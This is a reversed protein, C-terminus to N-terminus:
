FSIPTEKNIYKIETKNIYVMSCLKIHFPKFSAVSLHSTVINFTASISTVNLHRRRPDM